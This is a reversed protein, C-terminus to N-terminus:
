GYFLVVKRKEFLKATTMVASAVRSAGFSIQKVYNPGFEFLLINVLGFFQLSAFSM